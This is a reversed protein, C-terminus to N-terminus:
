ASLPYAVMVKFVRLLTQHWHFTSTEHFCIYWLMTSDSVVCSTSCLGPLLWKVLLPTQVNSRHCHRSIEWSGCRTIFWLLWSLLKCTLYSLQSRLWSSLDVWVQSVRDVDAHARFFGWNLYKRPRELRRKLTLQEGCFLVQLSNQRYIHAEHGVVEQCEASVPHELGGLLCARPRWSFCCCRWSKRGCSTFEPAFDPPYFRWQPWFVVLAVLIM